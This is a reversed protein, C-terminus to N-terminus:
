WAPSGRHSLSPSEDTWEEAWIADVEMRRGTGLGTSDVTLFSRACLVHELTAREYDFMSRPRM